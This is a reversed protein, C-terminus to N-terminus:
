IEIKILDDSLFQYVNNLNVDFFDVDIKQNGNDLNYIKSIVGQKDFYNAFMLLYNAYTIVKYVNNFEKKSLKKVKVKDGEVFIM